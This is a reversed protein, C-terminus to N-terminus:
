NLNKNLLNLTHNANKNKIRNKLSGSLSILRSLCVFKKAHFRDGSFLSCCIENSSKKDEGRVFFTNPMIFM